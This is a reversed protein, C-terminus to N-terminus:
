KAPTSGFAAQSSDVGSDGLAYKLNDSAEVREAAPKAIAKEVADRAAVTFRARVRGDAMAVKVGGARELAAISAGQSGAIAQLPRSVVHPVALAARRLAAANAETRAYAQTFAAPQGWSGAWRYFLHPGVVQTKVLSSAWTPLVYNAHYHTANGVPAYVAGHLMAEANRRARDWASAMPTRALSGDCTFTFQCGTPRTSGQYVVGCVSNPFAPHRVRNLVVQAVARQGDDDQQGAEYYIASTLCELAQRQAELSSGNISFPRAAGAPLAALPIEANLKVADAPALDRLQTAATSDATPAAPAPQADAALPRHRDLHGLTPMASVAGAVLALGGLSAALAMRKDRVATPWPLAPMTLMKVTM